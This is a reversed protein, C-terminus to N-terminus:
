IWARAEDIDEFFKVDLKRGFAKSGRVVAEMTMRQFLSSPKVIASKIDGSVMKFAKPLHSTMYWARARPDTSSLKRVDYLLKSYGSKAVHEAFNEFAEKYPDIDFKGSMEIMVFKKTEDKSIICNGSSNRYLEKM